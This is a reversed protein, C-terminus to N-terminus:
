EEDLWPKDDLKGKKLLEFYLETFARAMLEYNPENAFSGNGRPEKRPKRKPIIANKLELCDLQRMKKIIESRGKDPFLAELEEITSLITKEELLKEKDKTWKKM